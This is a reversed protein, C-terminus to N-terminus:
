VHLKMLSYYNSITQFISLTLYFFIILKEKRVFNKNTIKEQM